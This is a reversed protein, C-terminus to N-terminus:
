RKSYFLCDARIVFHLTNESGLYATASTRVKLQPVFKATMTRSKALSIVFFDEFILIFHKTTSTTPDLEYALAM